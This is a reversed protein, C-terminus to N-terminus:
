RCKLEGRTDVEFKLEEKHHCRRCYKFQKVGDTLDTPTAPTWIHNHCPMGEDDSNWYATRCHNNACRAPYSNKNYWINGCTACKHYWYQGEAKKIM